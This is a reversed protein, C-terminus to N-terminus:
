AAQPVTTNYAKAMSNPHREHLQGM